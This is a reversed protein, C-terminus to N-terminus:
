LGFIITKICNKGLVPMVKTSISWIVFNRQWFRDAQMHRDAPILFWDFIFDLYHKWSPLSKKWAWFLGMKAWFDSFNCIRWFKGPNCKTKLQESETCIHVKMEWQCFMQSVNSRTIVDWLCWSMRWSPFPASFQLMPILRFNWCKEASKLQIWTTAKESVSFKHM